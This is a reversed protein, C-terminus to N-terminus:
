PSLKVIRLQNTKDDDFDFRLSRTKGRKFVFGLLTRYGFRKSSDEDYIEKKSKYSTGFKAVVNALTIGLGQRALCLWVSTIRGKSPAKEVQVSCLLKDDPQQGSTYSTYDKEKLKRGTVREVSEIADGHLTWDSQQELQEVISFIEQTPSRGVLSDPLWDHPLGGILGPVIKVDIGSI